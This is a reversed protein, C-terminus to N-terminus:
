CAKERIKGGRRKKLTKKTNRRWGLLKPRHRVGKGGKASRGAKLEQFKKKPGKRGM